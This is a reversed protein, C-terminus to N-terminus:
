LILEHLNTFKYNNEENLAVRGLGVRWLYMLRGVLVGFWGVAGGFWGVMWALLCIVCGYGGILWGPGGIFMCLCCM